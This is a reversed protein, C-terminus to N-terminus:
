KSEDESWKKIDNYDAINILIFKSLFDIAAKIEVFVDGKLRLLNESTIILKNKM